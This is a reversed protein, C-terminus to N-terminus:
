GTKKKHSFHISILRIVAGFDYTAILAPLLARIGWITDEGSVIALYTFVCGLMIYFLGLIL